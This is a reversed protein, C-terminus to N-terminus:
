TGQEQARQELADLKERVEQAMRSRPFDKMIQRGVQLAKAWQKETVYMSFQVGMSQLKGRFVGRASEELAAAETATLYQDLLKLLEVGQDYDNDNVARNWRELLEKKHLHRRHETQGQLQGVKGNEPYLQLLAEVERQAEEYHHIMWLSEIHEITGEIKEEITAKKYQEMQGRLREAEGRRGFRTALGQILAEASDWRERRMDQQIADQLVQLDKERFAITKIADCLLINESVQTLIAQNQTQGSLLRRVDQLLSGSEEVVRRLYHLIGALFVGLGMLLAGSGGLLLIAAPPDMLWVEEGSLRGVLCVVGGAVVCGLGSVWLMGAVWLAGPSTWETGNAQQQKGMTNNGRKDALPGM